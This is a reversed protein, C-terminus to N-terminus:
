DTIGAIRSKMDADTVVVFQWPQKGWATPALRGTDVVKKILERSVRRPQYKSPQMKKPNREFCGLFGMRNKM